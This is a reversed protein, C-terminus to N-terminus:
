LTTEGKAQTELAAQEEQLERLRNRQAERAVFRVVEAIAEDLFYQNKQANTWDVPPPTVKDRLFLRLIRGVESDTKSFVRASVLTAVTLKLESAMKIHKSEM